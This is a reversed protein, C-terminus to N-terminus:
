LLRELNVYPFHLREDEGLKVEVGPLRAGTPLTVLGNPKGAVTGSRGRYPGRLVRVRDGVELPADLDIAQAAQTPMPVAIFPRKPHWRDGIDGSVAAERGDLSRLLDFVARAMPATGVGETAVLPLSVERLRPILSPPISGVVMGRVQMAAAQGIAEEDVTSGGVLITGQSSANVHAARIPHSSDRVVVRLVGYAERGNGWHAHFLGGVTEIVVGEEGVVEVVYGPLLANVRLIQPDAQLLLRGRGIGVVRGSIPSRSVRPALGGRAALVDGQAVTQGREVKLYASANRVPIDLDRAVEVIRFDPPQTTQAVIQTPEVSDGPRVLVEGPRPLLRLVRVAILPNAMSYSSFM